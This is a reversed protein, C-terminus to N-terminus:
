IKMLYGYRYIVNGRPYVLPTSRRYLARDYHLPTPHKLPKKLVAHYRSDTYTPPPLLRTYEHPIFVPVRFALTKECALGLRIQMQFLTQKWHLKFEPHNFHSLSQFLVHLAKDLPGNLGQSMGSQATVFVFCQVTM